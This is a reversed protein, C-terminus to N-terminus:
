GLWRSLVRDLVAVDIPKAMHENMGAQRTKAIDEAFANATMAIIPLTQVDSRPLRRIQSAAGCGDLVPMQMDMFILDYANEPADTM